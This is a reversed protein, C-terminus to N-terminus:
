NQLSGSDVASGKVAVAKKQRVYSLKKKNQLNWEPENV